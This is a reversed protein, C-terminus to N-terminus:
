SKWGKKMLAKLRALIGHPANEITRVALYYGSTGCPGTVPRCTVRIM